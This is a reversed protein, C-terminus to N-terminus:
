KGEDIGVIDVRKKASKRKVPQNKKDDNSELEEAMWAGDLILM